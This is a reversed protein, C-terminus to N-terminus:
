NLHLIDQIEDSLIEAYFVAGAKTLHFTDNSLFKGEEDFVRIKGDKNLLHEILSIYQNEWETKLLREVALVKDQVRTYYNSYDTISTWNNYHIGNSFGFNKTGFVYVKELNVAVDYYDGLSLVWDKSIHGNASFVILDANQWREVFQTKTVNEKDLYSLAFNENNPYELFINVVDRGFSDGIVLVKKKANTKFPTNLKRVSENYNLNITNPNLFSNYGQNQIDNKYLDLAPFDKYVGGIIYIYFASSTTLLFTTGLIILVKETSILKPNRFPNEVFHYTFVSAIFTLLVLLVSIKYDITEFYSYRSFAFILHHWMYLSFSIKGIYIIIKNQFVIKYFSSINQKLGGLTILIVTFITTSIVLFQNSLNSILFCALLGFAALLAGYGISTKSYTLGYFVIALLGGVSLEFFRFHLLYFRSAPNGYFFFFVLSVVSIFALALSFYKAGRKYVLLLVVPYVLYFQEEVGLSWTHMLPRYENEIAWYDSSSILMLINNASFNSAVVSQALDELDYPLMVFFGIILATTTICLLLPIIRRIRREYFRWISFTKHNLEKYIISTILYGSIVFFVDVGLYGNPLYGLHFLIVAIVAYARLGDIDERYAIM